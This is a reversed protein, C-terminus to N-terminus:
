TTPRDDPSAYSAGLRIYLNNQRGGYVNPIAELRM